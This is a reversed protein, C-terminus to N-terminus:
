GPFFKGQMPLYRRDAPWCRAIDRVQRDACWKSASDRLGTRHRVFCGIVIEETVAKPGIVLAMNGCVAPEDALEAAPTLALPVVDGSLLTTCSKRL